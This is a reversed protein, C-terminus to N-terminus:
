RSTTRRVEVHRDRVEELDVDLAELLDHVRDAADLDVERRRCAVLKEPSVLRFGTAALEVAALREGVHAGPVVLLEVGRGFRQRSSGRLSRLRISRWCYKMRLRASAAISPPARLGAM